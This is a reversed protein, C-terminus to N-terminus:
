SCGKASAPLVCSFTLKVGAVGQDVATIKRTPAGNDVARSRDERTKSVTMDFGVSFTAATCVVGKPPVQATPTACATGVSKELMKVTGATGLWASHDSGREFYAATAGAVPSAIVGGPTSPRMSYPHLIPAADTSSSIIIVQMEDGNKRWAVFSRFDLPRLALTPLIWGVSQVFADYTERQGNNTVDYRTPAVGARVALAAWQFEESTEVDGADNQEQALDDFSTALPNSDVSATQPADPSAVCASLAVACALAAVAVRTPNISAMVTM